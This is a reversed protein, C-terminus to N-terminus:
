AANQIYGGNLADLMAQTVLVIGSESMQFRRADAMEDYGIALGDPVVCGTDLVVRRLSCHKGISCDPLVVCDVIHSQEDAVVNTCMVSNKILAGSVVCGECILSNVAAGCIEASDYVFKAPPAQTPLTRIPWEKDNLNLEPKAGILEINAKWFSDLTGVDRWYHNSKKDATFSYAMVRHNKILTPIIHRGFDEGLSRIPEAALVDSLYKTNFVYVGMSSLCQRPKGPICTPEKPKETFRVVRGEDNVSLVGFACGEEIPTEVASITMDAGSSVHREILRAYDMKYIHDGALVLVYEPKHATIVDLNKFIADATGRYGLNSDGCRSAPLLEVNTNGGSSHMGWGLQVHQDLSDSKYQTLVGVHGVGSNLCNSLAFDILRYKGGFPVAPKATNDTLGHLRTGRGGALVLALTRNMHNKSNILSTVAM